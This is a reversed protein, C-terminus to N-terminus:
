KLGKTKLYDEYCEQLYQGYYDQIALFINKTLSNSNKFDFSILEDIDLLCGYKQDDGDNKYTLEFRPLGDSWSFPNAELCISVKQKEHYLMNTM